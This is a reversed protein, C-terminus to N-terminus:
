ADQIVKFCTPDKSLADFFKFPKSGKINNYSHSLQILAHNSCTVVHHIMTARPYRLRIHWESSVLVRDLREQINAVGWRKNSWTYPSGVFELVVAHVQDIFKQLFTSSTSPFQCGGLKERSSMIENFNAWCVWEEM